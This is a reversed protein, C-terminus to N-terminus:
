FLLPSMKLLNASPGLLELPKTVIWDTAQCFSSFVNQHAQIASHPQVAEAIQEKNVLNSSFTRGLLMGVRGHGTYDYKQVTVPGSIIKRLHLKHFSLQKKGM